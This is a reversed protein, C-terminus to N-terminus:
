NEFEEGREIAATIADYNELFGLWCKECVLDTESECVVVIVKGIIPLQCRDCLKM